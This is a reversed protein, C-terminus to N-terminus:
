TVEIVECDNVQILGLYLIHPVGVYILPNRGETKCTTYYEQTAEPLQRHLELNELTFQLYNEAAYRNNPQTSSLFIITQVPLLLSVPIAFYAATPPTFGAQRLADYTDNPYVPSCHIVDNWLCNLPPIRVELLAERGKYKNQEQTKLDPFPLQNLPYITDGMFSKSKRHYVFETLM